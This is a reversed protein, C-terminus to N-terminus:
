LTPSCSRHFSTQLLSRFTLAVLSGLDPLDNQPSLLLVSVRWLLVFVIFDPFVYLLLTSATRASLCLHPSPVPSRLHRSALGFPLTFRSRALSLPAHSAPIPDCPLLDWYEQQSMALDFDLKQSCSCMPHILSPIKIILCCSLALLSSSDLIIDPTYTYLVTPKNAM